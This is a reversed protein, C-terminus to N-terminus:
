GIRRRKARYDALIIIEASRRGQHEAAKMFGLAWCMPASFWAALAQEPTMHVEREAAPLDLRM